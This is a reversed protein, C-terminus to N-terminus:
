KDFKIKDYFEKKEDISNQLIQILINNRTLGWDLFNIVNSANNDNITGAINKVLEYNDLELYKIILRKTYVDANKMELLINESKNEPIKIEYKEKLDKLNKELISNKM